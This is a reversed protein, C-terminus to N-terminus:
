TAQLIFFPLFSPFSSFRFSSLLPLIPFSLRSGTAFLFQTADSTLMSAFHKSFTADARATSYSGYAATGKLDDTAPHWTTGQKVRRVLAWGGGEFDNICNYTLATRLVRTLLLIMVFCAILWQLSWLSV